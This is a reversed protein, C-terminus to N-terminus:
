RLAAASIWVSGVLGSPELPTEADFPDIDVRTHRQEVPLRLDGILRNKWDNTVRVQVDNVGAHLYPSIDVRFPATWLGGAYKGNIIVKAIVHVEDVSLYYQRNQDIAPMNFKNRYDATGSFYKLRPDNSATWDTLRDFRIVTDAVGPILTHFTVMWPSRIEMVRRLSAYNGLAKREAGHSNQEAGQSNKVFVIFASGAAELKL